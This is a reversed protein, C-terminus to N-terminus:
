FSTKEAESLSISQMKNKRSERLFAVASFASILILPDVPVRYRAHAGPGTVFAFYLAIAFFMRALRVDKSRWLSILLILTIVGWFANEVLFWGHNKIVTILLPLSFPNLAQILAPEPPVDFDPLMINVTWWYDHAGNSTFFPIFTSLHFLAYRFPNAFIVELATKQLVASYEPGIPVPGRPIGAMDELVYRAELTSLGHLSAYLGVANQRFIFYPGTSAFQWSNLEIKNRVCWPALTGAFAAIMLLAAFLHKRSIAAWPLYFLFYAPIFFFLIYLAAAKIYVILGFLFGTLAWRMYINKLESFFFVYLATTLVFTFVTENMLTSASLFTNPVILYLLVLAFAWKEGIVRKAMMFVLLATLFLIFIQAILVPYFSHFLAYFPAIFAPYGPTRWMDPLFPATTAISFVGHDVLNVAGTAFLSEIDSSVAPFESAVKTGATNAVHSLYLLSGGATFVTVALIILWLQVGKYRVSFENKM